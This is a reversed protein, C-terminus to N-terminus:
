ASTFIRRDSCPGGRLVAQRLAARRVPARLRPAPRDVDAGGEGGLGQPSFGGVTIARNHAFVRLSRVLDRRATGPTATFPWWNGEYDVWRLTGSGGVTFGLPLAATVGLTVRRSTNREKERETRVRGWGASADVRVTPSAVWGAGVSVDTIPGDLHTDEDYRREHRSLHANLVTRPGLRHRGEVRLGLDYHSPDEIGSGIWEHRASALVSVDTYRGVWGARPRCLRVTGAADFESGKYEKRSIDGGVRLRYTDSLPYQYEGGAWASIGVGSKRANDEGFTFPLRGFPTDLLITRDKSRAGINSDPALAAGIRVSWRKRARIQALFRNVNLVVAAPPKGALVQEFHRKALTDEGKLFFARALELRARVLGPDRVLMTRLAEIAADLLAERAEESAGPRRSAEIGAVGILFLAQAPVPRQAAVPRLIGLAEVYRGKKVLDRAKAIETAAPQGIGPSPPPQQAAAPASLVLAATVALVALIGRGIRM